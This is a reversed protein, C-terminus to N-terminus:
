GGGSDSSIRGDDMSIRRGAREGLRPDHTVVMLTIGQERNLGELLTIVEEGSRSDLNGTPEDALILRPAMAMARAIAVRQRQGGSLEAPRHDARNDLGLEELLRQSRRHREAPLVGCLMLPLEVNERATLRPILHFSQFVFGIRHGRLQALAPESLTAIDQGGLWYQGEDPRDLLGLVNLLTSKGSGSPGMVALYEGEAVRLSVHELAAVETGGLTFRRSVADLRILESM